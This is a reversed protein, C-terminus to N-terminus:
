ENDENNEESQPEEESNSEQTNSDEKDTEIEADIFSLPKGNEDREIDTFTPDTGKFLDTNGIQPGFKFVDDLDSVDRKAYELSRPSKIMKITKYDELASHFYGITDAPMGVTYHMAEGIVTQGDLKGDYEENVFKVELILLNNIIYRSGEESVGLIDVYDGKGLIGGLADTSTISFSTTSWDDPIGVSSGALEGANSNAIIDGAYLPYKSYTKGQQIESMNIANVPGTGSATERSAVMDPTILQKAKVNTNLVYYTETSFLSSLTVFILASMLFVGIASAIVLILNKKSGGNDPNFKVKKTKKPKSLVKKTNDM